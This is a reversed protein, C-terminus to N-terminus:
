KGNIIKELSHKAMVQWSWFNDENIPQPTILHIGLEEQNLRLMREITDFMASSMEFLFQCFDDNTYPTYGYIDNHKGIYIAYRLPDTMFNDFIRSKFLDYDEPIDVVVVIDGPVFWTKVVDMFQGMLYNMKGGHYATWFIYDLITRDSIFRENESAMHRNVYTLAFYLQRTAFDTKLVNENARTVEKRIPIGFSESIDQAFTSKGTGSPGTLWISNM